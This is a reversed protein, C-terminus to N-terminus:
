SVGYPAGAVPLECSPQCVSAPRGSTSVCATGRGPTARRLWRRREDGGTPTSDGFHLLGIRALIGATARINAAWSAVNTAGVGVTACCAAWAYGSRKVPVTV